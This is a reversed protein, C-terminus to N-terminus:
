IAATDLVARFVLRVVTKAIAAIVRTQSCTSASPAVATRGPRVPNDAYATSVLSMPTASTEAAGAIKKTWRSFSAVSTANKWAPRVLRCACARTVPKKQLVRHKVIEATGRTM